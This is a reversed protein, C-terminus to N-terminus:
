QTKAFQICSVAYQLMDDSLHVAEIAGSLIEVDHKTITHQQSSDL